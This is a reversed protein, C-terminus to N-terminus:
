PAGETETAQPDLMWQTVRCFARHHPDSNRVTVTVCKLLHEDEVAEAEVEYTWEPDDEDFPTAPVAQLELIGANLEALLSEALNVGRQRIRLEVAADITRSLAAGVVAAAIVILAVALLVELLVVGRGAPTRTPTRGTM